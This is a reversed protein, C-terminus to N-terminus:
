ESDYQKDGGIKSLDGALIVPQMIRVEHAWRHEHHSPPEHLLFIKKGLWYALGMEMLASTGIYGSIGNKQHNLVLVADSDAVQQFGKRIVDGEISYKYNQELDDILAGDEIHKEVDFPMDAIHGFRELAEKTKLMDESFTMSGLIMIKM